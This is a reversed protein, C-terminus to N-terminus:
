RADLLQDDREGKIVQVVHEFSAFWPSPEAAEPSASLQDGLELLRPEAQTLALGNELSWAPTGGDLLRVNEYGADKLLWRAFPASTCGGDSDTVVIPWQRSPVAGALVAQVLARPPRMLAPIRPDPLSVSRSLAALDLFWSGPIH